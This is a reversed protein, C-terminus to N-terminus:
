LYNKGSKGNKQLESRNVFKVLVDFRITDLDYKVDYNHCIRMPIEGQKGVKAEIGGPLKLEAFIVGLKARPIGIRGLKSFRNRYNLRYALKKMATDVNNADYEFGVHYQEWGKELFPLKDKKTAHPISLNNKLSKLGSNLMKEISKKKM